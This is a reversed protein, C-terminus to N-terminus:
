MVVMFVVNSIYHTRVKIDEWRSHSNILRIEGDDIDEHEDDSSQILPRDQETSSDSVNRSRSTEEVIYTSPMWMIAKHVRPPSRLVKWYTMFFTFPVVLMSFLATQPSLALLTKETLIAYAMAGVVGAGGTGSSWTSIVDSFFM